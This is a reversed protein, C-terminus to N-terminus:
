ALATVIDTLSLSTMSSKAKITLFSCFVLPSSIALSITVGLNASIKASEM